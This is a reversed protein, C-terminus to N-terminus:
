CVYLYVLRLGCIRYKGSFRLKMCIFLNYSIFTICVFLLIL